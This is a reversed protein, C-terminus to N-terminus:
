VAPICLPLHVRKHLRLNLDLCPGIFKTKVFAGSLDGNVILIIIFAEKQPVGAKFLIVSEDRLIILCEVYGCKM